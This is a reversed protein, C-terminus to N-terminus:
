SADCVQCDIKLSFGQSGNPLDSHILAAAPEAWLEGLSRGHCFELCPFDQTEVLINLGRMSLVVVASRIFRPSLEGRSVLHSEVCAWLRM